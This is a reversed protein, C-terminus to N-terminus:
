VGLEVIEVYCGQSASIVEQYPVFVVVMYSMGVM